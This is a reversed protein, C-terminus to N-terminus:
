TPRRHRRGFTELARLPLELFRQQRRLTASAAEDPFRPERRIAASTYGLLMVVAAPDDRSRRLTRLILFSPRYGMYHAARGRARWKELRGDRAGEPRHHRFSLGELTGTTWGGVAAKFADIGDWGMREELPTVEALCAARYARCAGWVHDGTVRRTVWRGQEQELCAGSAIGLTPEAEFRGLLAAFYDPDLSVDADLKVIIDAQAQLAAAGAQFARVIPGGRAYPEPSVLPTVWAYRGQLQEILAATGDESGTDVIVWEQPPQTQDALSRALRDLHEAENRVPTVVAYSLASRGSTM